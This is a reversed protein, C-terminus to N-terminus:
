RVIVLVPQRRPDDTAGVLSRVWLTTEGARLGRLSDADLAAVDSDLTIMIPLSLIREGTSTHADVGLRTLPTAEGPALVLTDPTVAFSDPVAGVRQLSDLEPASFLRPAVDIITGGDLRAEVNLVPAEVPEDEGGCATALLCFLVTWCPTGPRM